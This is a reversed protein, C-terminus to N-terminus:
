IGRYQGLPVMKSRMEHVDSDRIPDVISLRPKPTFEEGKSSIILTLYLYRSSAVPHRQLHTSGGTALDRSRM